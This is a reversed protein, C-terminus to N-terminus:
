RILEIGLAIVALVTVVDTRVDRKARNWMPAGIAKSWVNTGGHILVAPWVSGTYQWSITMLISLMLCLWLFQAQNKVFNPPAKRRKLAPVERPFHWAWWLLALLATAWVSSGTTVVLVPLAWGRWGLEELAGGEDIFAGGALRLWVQVSNRDRLLPPQEEPAASRAVRLYGIAGVIFVVVITAYTLLAGRRDVGTWPALRHAFATFGATNSGFPAVALAAVSPASAFVIIAWAPPRAISYRAISVANAYTRQEDLWPFMEPIVRRSAPHNKQRRGSHVMVASAIALAIVYYTTFAIWHNM